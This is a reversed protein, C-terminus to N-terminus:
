ATFASVVFIPAAPLAGVSAQEQKEADETVEAKGWATEGMRVCGHSRSPWAEITLSLLVEKLRVLEKQM